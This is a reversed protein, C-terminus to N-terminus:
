RMILDLSKKSLVVCCTEVLVGDSVWGLWCRFSVSNGGQRLVEGLVRLVMEVPFHFWFSSGGQSLLCDLVQFVLVVFCRFLFSNEDRYKVAGLASLLVEALFHFWVLDEDQDLVEDVM